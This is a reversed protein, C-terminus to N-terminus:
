IFQRNWIFYVTALSALISGLQATINVEGSSDTTISPTPSSSEDQAASDVLKEFDINCNIAHGRNAQQQQDFKSKLTTVLSTKDVGSTAQIICVFYSRVAECAVSVSGSPDPTLQSQCQSELSQAVANGLHANCLFIYFFYFFDEYIQSKKPDFLDQCYSHVNSQRYSYLPYYM